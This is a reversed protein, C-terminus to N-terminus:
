KNTESKELFVQGPYITIKGFRADHIGAWQMGFEDILQKIVGVLGYDHSPFRQKYLSLAPLYKGQSKPSLWKSVVKNGILFDLFAGFFRRLFSGRESPDSKPHAGDPWKKWYAAGWDEIVYFGGPKLHNKFLHWFSARTYEGFHSCDDIIIDFGSPANEKALRDLLQVDQQKGCYVKVRDPLNQDMNKKFDLGVITGKRFYDRWMLLSGGEHVGLELLKIEEQTLKGFYTEYNRMYDEAKLAGYKKFDLPTIKPDPITM